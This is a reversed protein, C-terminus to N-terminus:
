ILLPLQVAAAAAAAAAMVFAKQVSEQSSYVEL